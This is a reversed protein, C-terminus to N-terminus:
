LERRAATRERLLEVPLPVGRIEGECVLEEGVFCEFRSRVMARPRMAVRQSVIVLRDGPLVMGRFKVGELGGFGVMEVQMLKHRQMQYTCLQAAAECMMVGPMLPLGPMHGRVWFEDPAVDKYGVCLGREPDDLVIATLQEFEHRQPLHRHIEDIDAVIKTLDLTSIDLILDKGVM